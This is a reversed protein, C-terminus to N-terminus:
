LGLKKILQERNMKSSGKGVLKRMEKVTPIKQVQPIAITMLAVPSIEKKHYTIIELEDDFFVSPIPEAEFFDPLAQLADNFEETWEVLEADDETTEITRVTALKRDSFAAFSVLVYLTSAVMTLATLATLFDM